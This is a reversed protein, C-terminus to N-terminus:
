SENIKRWSRHKLEAQLGKYSHTNIILQVEAPTLGGKKVMDNIDKHEISSPWLCVKRGAKIDKAIRENIQQNRPENDYVFTANHINELGKMSVDAGVMAISNKLFMSDIPGELVNYPQSFDVEDLGYIKPVDGLMITIYRLSKPDFARGQFGFMNGESDLLPIILRPEERVKDDMKGPLISNVWDKFKPCYYLKYHKDLPIKRNMVYKKVPHDPSLQSVKKLKSLPSTKKQFSPKSKKLTDLGKAEDRKRTSGGAKIKDMRKEVVYENYLLVDTDKLYKELHNSYGCNFCKYFATNQHENIWGRCKTKSKQSDGCISCRFNASYPNTNKVKFHELRGSLMGCFKVDIHNMSMEGLM